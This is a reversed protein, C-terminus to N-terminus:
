WIDVKASYGEKGLIEPAMCNPTGKQSVTSSRAYIDADEDLKKATGFDSIKCIGKTTILVITILLSGNDSKIDRHMVSQSHLYELGLIIQLTNCQILKEPFVGVRKLVANISGGPVYELYLNSFYEDVEFGKYDVIHKHKLYKLIEMEHIAENLAVTSRSNLAIQKVAMLDWSHLDIGLYVSGFAGMGIRDGKYWSILNGIGSEKIGLAKNKLSEQIDKLDNPDEELFESHTNRSIVFSQRLTARRPNISERLTPNQPTSSQKMMSMRAVGISTRKTNESTETSILLDKLVNIDKEIYDTSKRDKRNILFSQRMTSNRQSSSQLRSNYGMSARNSKKRIVDAKKKALVGLPIDDDEDDDELNASMLPVQKNNKSPKRALSHRKQALSILPHDVEEEGMDQLPSLMSEEERNSFKNIASTLISKRSNKAEPDRAVM